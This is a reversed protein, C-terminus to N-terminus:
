WTRRLRFFLHGADSEVLSELFTGSTTERAVRPTWVGHLDAASEIV